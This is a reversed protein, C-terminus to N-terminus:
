MSHNPEIYDHFAALYLNKSVEYDNLKKQSRELEQSLTEIDDKARQINKNNTGIFLELLDIDTGAYMKKNHEKLEKSKIWSPLKLETNQFIALVEEVSVSSPKIEARGIKATVIVTSKPPIPELLIYSGLRINNKKFYVPGEFEDSFFESNNTYELKLTKNELSHIKLKVFEKFPKSIRATRSKKDSAKAEFEDLKAKFGEIKQKQEDISKQKSLVISTIKQHTKEYESTIDNSLYKTLLEPKNKFFDVVGYDVIKKYEAAYSDWIKQLTSDSTARIAYAQEWAHNNLNAVYDMAAKSYVEFMLRDHQTNLQNYLVKQSYHYEDTTDFVIKEIKKQVHAHSVEIDIEIDSVSSESYASAQTSITSNPNSMLFLSITLVSTIAVVPIFLKPRTFSENYKAKLNTLSMWNKRLSEKGSNTVFSKIDIAKDKINSGAEKLENGALLEKSSNAVSSKINMAKDTLNSGAEKLDNGALAIKDSLSEKLNDMSAQVPTKNEEKEDNASAAVQEEIYTIVGVKFFTMLTNIASKYTLDKKLTFTKGSYFEDEKDDSLKLFSKLSHILKENDKQPDIEGKFVVRYQKSV